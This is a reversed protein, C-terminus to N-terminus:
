QVEIMNDITAIDTALENLVTPLEQEAKQLKLLATGLHAWIAEKVNEHDPCIALTVRANGAPSTTRNGFEVGFDNIEGQADEAVGVRFYPKGKEDKMTLSDKKYAELNEIDELKLTSEIVVAEGLVKVNVASMAKVVASIYVTDEGSLEGLPTELNDVREGDVSIVVPSVYPVNNAELIAKVTDKDSALATFSNGNSIITINKTM